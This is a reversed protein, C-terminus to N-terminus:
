SVVGRLWEDDGLDRLRGLARSLLSDEAHEVRIRTARVAALSEAAAEIADRLAVVRRVIDAQDDRLHGSTLDANGGALIVALVAITAEATDSTTDIPATPQEATVPEPVPGVWSVAEDPMSLMYALEAKAKCSEALSGLRKARAPNDEANEIAGLRLDDSASTLLEGVDGLVRRRRNHADIARPMARLAEIVAAEELDPGPISIATAHLREILSAALEAQDKTLM